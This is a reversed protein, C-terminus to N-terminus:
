QMERVSFSLRRVRMQASTRRCAKHCLVEVDLELYWGAGM